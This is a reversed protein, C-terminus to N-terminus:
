ATEGMESLQDSRSAADLTPAEAFMGHRTKEWYSPAYFLQLLGKWAAISMLVWYFPSLLAYKVLSRYGRVYAGMMTLYVFTFNGVYLALGGIYFIPGPFLREIIGWFTLFWLIALAWYFPNLLLVLSTGGVMGQFGLFGRPGLARWLAVPHRMHVLWTQIYGKIWRSRQRTWNGLRSTAEEYTTSDIIATHLGRKALRVGLDADETVNYPDWSGLQELVARRFHNSTGGLPIPVKAEQLGPLLLDFWMSYEITFWRTLLNQQPNYLNLRCQICALDAPATRFADYVKRLQDPEPIDEADYIVVYDGRAHALGYNCAKPKGRLGERPVLVFTFYPPLLAAYAADITERDDEEMLLRVDLKAKPWDLAQIARALQPLVAAEHYLPVLITYVPLAHDPFHPVVARDALLGAEDPWGKKMLYLKYVSAAIYILTTAVVLAVTTLRWDAVLAMIVILATAAMFGQQRRSLVEHASDTPMTERLLTASRVLDPRRHATHLLRELDRNTAVLPRIPRAVRELLERLPALQSPDSTVLQVAGDNALLPVVRHERSGVQDLLQSAVDSSSFAAPDFTAYGHKYAVAAAVQDARALGLSVLAEGIRVGDQRHALLGRQLAPESITGAHLLMQGLPVERALGDFQQTPMSTPEPSPQM